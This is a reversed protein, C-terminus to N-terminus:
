LVELTIRAACQPCRGLDELQAMLRQSGLTSVLPRTCAPCVLEAEHALKRTVHSGYWMVGGLGAWFFLFVGMYAPDSFGLSEGFTLTGFTVGLVSAFGGFLVKNARSMRERFRQMRTRLTAIPMAGELPAADVADADLRTAREQELVRARVGAVLSIGGLVAFILGMALATQDPDLLAFGMILVAVGLTLAGFALLGQSHYMGKRRQFVGQVAFFGGMWLYWKWGQPDDPVLLHMLGYMLGLSLPLPKVVEWITKSWPEPVPLDERFALPQEVRPALPQEVRPALPQEVRPASSAGEAASAERPAFESV